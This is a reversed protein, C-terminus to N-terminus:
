CDLDDIMCEIENESSKLKFGRIIYASHSKDIKMGKNRLIGNFKRQSSPCHEKYNDDMKMLEYLDKVNVREASTGKETYTDLLQKVFDQSDMYEQGLESSHSWETNSLYMSYYKVIQNFMAIKVEDYCELVKNDRVFEKNAWDDETIDSRFTSNFPIVNMRGLTAPDTVDLPPIDNALMCLSATPKFEVIQNSHLARGSLSDGGTLEKIYASNMKEGKDPENLQVMRCNKLRFVDPNASGSSARTRQVMTSPASSHYKGLMYKMLDAMVSKGNSGANTFINMKRRRINGDLVACMSKMFHERDASDVFIKNLYMENLKNIVEQTPEEYNYGTTISIYDEPDINSWEGTKLNYKKNAFCIYEKLLDLKEPFKENKMKSKGVLINKFALWGADGSLYDIIVNWKKLIAKSYKDSPDESCKEQQKFQERKIDPLIHKGLLQQVDGDGNDVIKWVNNTNCKYISKDCYAFRNGVECLLWDAIISFTASKVHMSGHVANYVKELFKNKPTWDLFIQCVPIPKEIWTIGNETSPEFPHGKSIMVGDYLYTGESCDKIKDRVIIREIISILYWMQSSMPNNKDPDISNRITEVSDYKSIYAENNIITEIIKCKEYYFGLLFEDNINVLYKDTNWITSILEKGEEKPYNIKKFVKDRNNVYYNLHSYEINGGQKEYHKCILLAISFWCNSIDIDKYNKGLLIGRLHKSLYQINLGGVAYLRGKPRKKDPQYTVPIVVEGNVQNDLHKQAWAKLANLPTAKDSNKIM